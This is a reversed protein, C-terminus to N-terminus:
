HVRENQPRPLKLSILGHFISVHHKLTPISTRVSTAGCSSVRVHRPQATNARVHIMVYKQIQFPTRETPATTLPETHKGHINRAKIHMKLAVRAPEKSPTLCNMPLHSRDTSLRPSAHLAVRHSAQITRKHYARLTILGTHHM